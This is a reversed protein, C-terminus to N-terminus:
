LYGRKRFYVPSQKVSKNYDACKSLEISSLLRMRDEHKRGKSWM